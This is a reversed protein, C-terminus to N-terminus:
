WVNKLSFGCAKVIKWQSQAVPSTCIQMGAQVHLKVLIILNDIYFQTGVVLTFSTYNHVWWWLLLNRSKGSNIILFRCNQFVQTSIQAQAQLQQIQAQIQAAAPINGQPQMQLHTQTQQAMPEAYTQATAVQNSMLIQQMGPNLLVVQQPQAQLGTAATMVTGTNSSSTPSTTAAPTMGQVPQVIMAQPVHNTTSQQSSTQQTATQQQITAATLQLQQDASLMQSHHTNSVTTTSTTDAAGNFSLEAKATPTATQLCEVNTNICAIYM